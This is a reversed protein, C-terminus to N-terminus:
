ACGEDEVGKVDSLAGTQQRLFVFLADLSAFGRREGTLPNEISARWITAGAGAQKDGGDVQWLRLLFSLYEPPRSSDNPSNTM